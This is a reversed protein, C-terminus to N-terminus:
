LSAICEVEVKANLALGSAAFASRAPLPAAFYGKYIESAKAWDNIDALMLTCKTVNQATLQHEQLVAMINDMTQMMQSEIDAGALTMTGPFNGIQGSLWLMGDAKRAASFPLRNDDGRYVFRGNKLVHAIDSSNSIDDFPNTNLILLNAKKAVSVTGVEDDIGIAKASNLTAAQLAQAPTLGALKVLLKLEHHLEPLPAADDFADTGAAIAIGYQVALKTLFIGHQFMLERNPGKDRHQEFVTLTADLVIGQQQISRLLSHYNNSDFSATKVAESITGDKRRWAKYAPIVEASLDPVHSIAEVGAAVVASPKDPGIYAHSWVKIGAKKAAAALQRVKSAPVDAYIKIGSAGTGLARQMLADFDTNDDVSRMWDTDGPTEGKAAAATRPDSFFEPGGLIVAYYIDPAQILDLQASRKLGALVRVDGAMDRVSTVGGRLLKQLRQRTIAANNYGEPETAHHVHADILGPLVYKGTLDIQVYDAPVRQSGSLIASIKDDHLLIAQDPKVTLSEVDALNVNTLAIKAALAPLSILTTVLLSAGSLWQLLRM